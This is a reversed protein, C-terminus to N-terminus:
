FPLFPPDGFSCFDSCPSYLSLSMWLHSATSMWLWKGINEQTARSLFPLASCQQHCPLCTPVLRLVSVSYLPVRALLVLECFHMCLSSAISLQSPSIVTVRDKGLCGLSERHAWINISLPWAIIFGYHTNGLGSKGQQRSTCASGSWLTAGPEPQNSQVAEPHPKARWPGASGAAIM